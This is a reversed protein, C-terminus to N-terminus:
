LCFFEGKGVCVTRYVFFVSVAPLIKMKYYLGYRCQKDLMRCILETIIGDSGQKRYFLIYNFYM